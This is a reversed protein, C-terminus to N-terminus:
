PQWISGFMIAFRREDGDFRRMSIRVFVGGYVDEM